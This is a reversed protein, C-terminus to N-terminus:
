TAGAQRPAPRTTALQHYSSLRWLGHSRRTTYAVITGLFKISAHGPACIVTAGAQNCRTGPLLNTVASPAYAVDHLVLCKTEGHVPSDIFATGFGEVKLGGGATNIMTAFRMPRYNHLLTLCHSVHNSAGTDILWEQPDRPDIVLPEILPEVSAIATAAISLRAMCHLDGRIPADRDGSGFEHDYARWSSKYPCQSCFHGIEHCGCCEIRSRSDGGSSNGSRSGFRNLGSSASSGAGGGNFRRPGGGGGNGFGGVNTARRLASGDRANNGPAAYHVSDVFGLSDIPSPEEQVLAATMKELDFEPPLRLGTKVIAFHKHLGNFIHLILADDGIVADVDRLRDRMALARDIYASVREKPLMQLKQM